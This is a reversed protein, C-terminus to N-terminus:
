LGDVLYKIVFRPTLSIIIPIGSLVMDRGYIGASYLSRSVLSATSCPIRFQPAVVHINVPSLVEIHSSKTKVANFVVTAGAVIRMSIKKSSVDFIISCILATTVRFLMLVNEIIPSSISESHFYKLGAESLFLPMGSFSDKATLNILSM